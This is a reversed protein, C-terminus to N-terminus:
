KKNLEQLLEALPKGRRRASAAGSAPTTAASGTPASTVLASPSITITETEQPQYEHLGKSLLATIIILAGVVIAVIGPSSTALRAKVNNLAEGDVETLKSHTHFSVVLGGFILGSGVLIALLRLLTLVVLSLGAFTFSLDGAKDTALVDLARVLTYGVLGVLLAGCLGLAMGVGIWLKRQWAPMKGDSSHEEGEAM